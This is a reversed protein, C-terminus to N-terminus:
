RLFLLWAGTLLPAAPMWVRSFKRSLEYEEAFEIPSITLTYVRRYAPEAAHYFADVWNLRPSFGTLGVAILVAELIAEM